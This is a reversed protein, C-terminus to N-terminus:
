ERCTSEGIDSGALVASLAATDLPKVFYHDFGAAFARDRDEKRGYGTVAIMLASATEPQGRLMRVLEIGDFDPLGLDLLCVEPSVKQALTLGQAATYAVSVQHGTSELFDALTEAADVNDDVVLCKHTTSCVVVKNGIREVAEPQQVLPLEITFTSGLGAGASEAKATGGHLQVLTKVLALGIGLGGQTRDSTREAQAFLDFVRPVLEPDMGIGSDSVSLTVGDDICSLAVKISGGDNTYKAANNLLNATIQVLRKSDGSVFCAQRPLEVTLQQRKQNVMPGVQEVAENVIRRFDVVTLDLKVLGRTVRSVDLLDNVLGTMHGVQRAIVTATRSVLANSKQTQLLIQAGASIPALPNRLEHALMALFEDKRKDAAVLNAEAEDREYQRTELAQAMGDLARALDSIEEKGYRVGTRTSLSGSAISNATNALRRVRRVILIDGGWWAAIGALVVTTLLGLLAFRQDRRADALIGAEPVGILVTYNSLTSPGVRASAYLRGVNDSDMQLSPHLRTAEILNMAGPAKKGFWETPNPRRSIVGGQEDLTWLVSEAPLKIDMVFKDLETLDLAAFLVAVVADNKIIPYTLNVTHKQVVRGFVYNGAIFRHEAVARKFHDRDGLNVKISSPVASCSVDGNLQIVGFNVYDTNKSLIDVLLEDCKTESELLTPVSSLDRLIQMAQEISQAENAAALNAIRQLNERASTLAHERERIGVAITMAILPAIALAVLLLLRWRLSLLHFRAM